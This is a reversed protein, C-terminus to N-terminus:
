RFFHRLIPRPPAPTNSRTKVATRKQVAQKTTL